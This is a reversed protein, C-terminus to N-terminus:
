AREQPEDETETALWAAQMLSFSRPDPHVANWVAAIAEPDVLSRDVGGGSWRAAFARSHESFFAEDFAAKSRRALVSEPLLDGFLDRMATSRDVPGRPGYRAAATRLVAPDLFPHVAQAGADQALLALTQSLVNRSRSQWWRALAADWRLPTRAQWDARRRNILADVHPHLWPWRLQHRRALVARRMPVPSLALGVARLHRPRPAVRGALVRQAAYWRQPGLLEDGGIGTLLSGGAAREFLPTHFHANFPWLVGHRRLVSQAVPGISDLESSMTIRVWDALGFHRVVDEQFGDERSAPAGPFRYTAPIPLALGDRRAVLAAIALVAASDRGGSFSVLCPPRRLAPLVSRELAARLDASKARGLKPGHLEGNIVLGCVVELPRPRMDVAIAAPM